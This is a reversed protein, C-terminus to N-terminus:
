DRAELEPQLMRVPDLLLRVHVDSCTFTRTYDALKRLFAIFANRM